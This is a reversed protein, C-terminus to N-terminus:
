RFGAAKLGALMDDRTEKTGFQAAFRTANFFPALRALVAREREVDQQRELRAYAAALVPHVMLQNMRGPNRALASELAGIAEGYQGLAYQSIGLNMLIEANTSGLRQAGELWTVAETSKGSWQLIAGRVQYCDADSPNIALAQDVQVLARDYDKRFMSAYALLLYAKTAASDLALAKKALVEARDIEDNPFETWGSVAAEYHVVGLAAYASAYNPDLDIARQFLQRAEDNAARTPNAYDARGRLVYDYAALNATPKRLVRDRELRTLKVATAGVIRRTIDDQVSFIDKPETNYVESWLQFGTAAESLEVSIRLQGGARRISGEVVYRVNLARGVEAPTIDRGKFQLSASKAAVLLNSFRGLANIIDETIGDSFFDQGADPSLNKFPLVAVPTREALRAPVALTAVLPEAIAAGVASGEPMPSRYLVMVTLGASIGIGAIGVAILARWHAFLRAAAAPSTAGVAYVRVPETINKVRHKGWPRYDLDLKNKVQDYATGSLCIGGPAALGQLRAAINIGDGYLDDDDAVIVDGLNIGIRLQLHRDPPSASNLERATQQMKMACSLADVVSGFDALLGDGATSVIRGAHGAILPDIRRRLQKLADYTATENEGMLRSYGVVDAFLIAALKRQRTGFARDTAAPSAMESM